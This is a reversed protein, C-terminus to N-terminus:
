RIFSNKFIMKTEFSLSYDYLQRLNYMCPYVTYRQQSSKILIQKTGACFYNESEKKMIKSSVVTSCEADTGHLVCCTSRQLAAEFFFFVTQRMEIEKRVEKNRGKCGDDPGLSKGVDGAQAHDDRNWQSIHLFPTQVVAFRWVLFFYTYHYPQSSTFIFIHERM